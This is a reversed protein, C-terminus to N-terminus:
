WKIAVYSFTEIRKSISKYNRLVYTVNPYVWQKFLFGGIGDGSVSYPNTGSQNLRSTWKNYYASLSCYWGWKSLVPQNWVSEITINM